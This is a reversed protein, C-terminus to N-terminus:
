IPLKIWEEIVVRYSYDVMRIDEKNKEIFELAEERSDFDLALLLDDNFIFDAGNKTLYLGEKVNKIVYKIRM